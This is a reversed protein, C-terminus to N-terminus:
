VKRIKKVAELQIQRAELPTFVVAQTPLPQEVPVDPVKDYVTGFLITDSPRWYITRKNIETM